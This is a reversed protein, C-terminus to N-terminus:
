WHWAIHASHASRSPMSSNLSLSRCEGRAPGHVIVARRFIWAFRTPSRLPSQNPYYHDQVGHLPEGFPLRSVSVVPEHGREMRTVMESVWSELFDTTLSGDKHCMLAFFMPCNVYIKIFLRPGLRVFGAVHPVVGRGRHWLV